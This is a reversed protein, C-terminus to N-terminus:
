IWTVMWCCRGRPSMLQQRAVARRAAVRATQVRRPEARRLRRGDDAHRGSKRAAGPTLARGARGGAQGQADDPAPPPDSRRWSPAAARRPRRVRAYDREDAEAAASNTAFSPCRARSAAGGAARRAPSAAGPPPPGLARPQGPRPPAPPRPRRRARRALARRAVAHARAGDREAGREANGADRPAVAEAGGGAGGAPKEGGSLIEICVDGLRKTLGTNPHTRVMHGKLGEGGMENLLDRDDIAVWRDVGFKQGNASMWETIEQPRIPQFMARMPTAGIVEIDLRKLAAIVQRKLQAQRRWDTSLVVKAQTAKAVQNLVALKSEELRGAMNCCIVGDIDLFIVAVM